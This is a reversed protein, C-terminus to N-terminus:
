AKVAKELRDRVIDSASYHDAVIKVSWGFETMHLKCTELLKDFRKYEFHETGHNYVKVLTSTSEDVIIFIYIVGDVTAQNVVIYDKLYLSFVPADKLLGLKDMYIEENCLLQFVTEGHLVMRVEYSDWLAAGEETNLFEELNQGKAETEEMKQWIQITEYAEKWDMVGSVTNGDADVIYYGVDDANAKVYYQKM